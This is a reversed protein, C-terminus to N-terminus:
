VDLKLTASDFTLFKEFDKMRIHIKYFQCTSIQRLIFIPANKWSCNSCFQQIQTIFKKEQLWEERVIAVFHCFSCERKVSIDRDHFPSHVLHRARNFSIPSLRSHFFSPFFFIHCEPQNPKTSNLAHTQSSGPVEMLWKKRTVFYMYSSFVCICLFIPAAAATLPVIPADLLTMYKSFLRAPPFFSFTELMISVRSIVLHLPTQKTDRRCYYFSRRPHNRQDCNRLSGWGKWSGM